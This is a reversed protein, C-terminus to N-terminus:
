GCAGGQDRHEPEQDRQGHYAELLMRPQQHGRFAVAWAARRAGRSGRARRRIALGTLAQILPDLDGSGRRQWGLPFICFRALAELDDILATSTKSSRTPM